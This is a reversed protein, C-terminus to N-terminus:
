KGRTRIKEGAIFVGGLAGVIYLLPMPAGKQWFWALLGCAVVLVQGTEQKFMKFFDMSTAPKGRVLGSLHLM